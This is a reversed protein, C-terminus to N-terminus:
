CYTLSVRGMKIKDGVELQTPSNIDVFEGNKLTGNTSNLDYIYIKGDHEEFRAHMKSVTNDAIVYDSVGALKGVTMPLHDLSVSIERGNCKGRLVREERIGDELCITEGCFFVENENNVTKHMIGAPQDAAERIEHEHPLIKINEKEAGGNKEENLDKRLKRKKNCGAFLMGAAALAMVAAGYMSAQRGANLMHPSSVSVAATFILIGFAGIICIIGGTMGGIYKQKDPEEYYLEGALPEEFCVKERKEEAPVNKEATCEIYQRIECMVFNPNRTYRYVQYGIMVAAEDTHKVRTLLRDVLETFSLRVDGEYDPYYVFYPNMKEIDVYIFDCDLIIQAGDLLYEELTEFLRISGIFVAKLERSGLEKKELVRELSQLSNIEYCFSSEKNTQRYTMPLLGNINNELVMRVRYDKEEIIGKGFFDCKSLVLYNHNIGREYNKDPMETKM